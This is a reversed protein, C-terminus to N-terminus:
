LTTHTLQAIVHPPWLLVRAPLSTCCLTGPISHYYVLDVTLSMCVSFYTPGATHDDLSPKATQCHQTNGVINFVDLMSAAASASGLRKM